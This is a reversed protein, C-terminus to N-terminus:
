GLVKLFGKSDISGKINTYFWGDVFSKASHYHEDFYGRIVNPGKIMLIGEENEKLERNPDLQDVVKIAVGPLPRGSKGQMTGIDLSSKGSINRIMKDPTNLAIIPSCEPLGFGTKILMDLKRETLEQLEDSVMIEESLIHRLGNLQEISGEKIVEELVTNSAVLITSANLEIQQALDKGSIGEDCKTASIGLVIPLWLNVTHGFVKNFNTLGILKDNSNFQHLQKIGLINTVINEHSLPISKLLIGGERHDRDFILSAIDTKKNSGFLKSIITRSSSFRFVFRSKVENWIIISSLLQKTDRTETASITHFKLKDDTLILELGSRHIIERITEASTEDSLNVVTKGLLNLTLHLLQNNYVSKDAIGIIQKGELLPKLQYALSIMEICAKKYTKGSGDFAFQKHGKRRAQKLFYYSSTHYDRIRDGFSETSLEITKQRVEFASSNNPLPDGINISIRRKLRSWKFRIAKASGPEFSMPSGIVNDIHMPIIPANIGRAIHEIGRKFENLHGTRSIKGEPFICVVHGANIQDQCLKNFEQMAGHGGQPSIPIMNVSRYFWNMMPYDYVKKHMVFRLMRPVAAVLFLADLFSIHNAIVLAGSKKPIM